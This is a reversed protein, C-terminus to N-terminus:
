IHILSLDQTSEAPIPEKKTKAKKKPMEEAWGRAKMNDIQSPHVSIPENANPHYMLM